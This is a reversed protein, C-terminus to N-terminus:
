APARKAASRPRRCVLRSQRRQLDLLHKVYAKPDPGFRDELDHRVKRVEEVIPDHWM